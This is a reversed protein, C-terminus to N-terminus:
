FPIDEDAIVAVPEPEAPPEQGIPQIPKWPGFEAVTNALTQWGEATVDKADKGLYGKVTEFWKAKREDASMGPTKALFEKWASTKPDVPGSPAPPAAPKGNTPKAASSKTSARNLARLEGGYKADLSQVIAPDSALRKGEYDRHNMFLVAIYEKGDKKSTEYGITLQVEVQNWQGEALSKLSAGDWGLSSMLSEIVHESWSGDNKKMFFRKTIELDGAVPSWGSQSDLFQQLQFQVEFIPTGNYEGVEWSAPVALYRGALKPLPM